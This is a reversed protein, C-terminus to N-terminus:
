EKYNTDSFYFVIDKNNLIYAKKIPLNEIRFSYYQENNEKKVKKFINSKGNFKKLKICNFGGIEFGLLRNDEGFDLFIEPNVPLQETRIIKESQPPLLYIYGMQAEPDYTIQPGYYNNMIM